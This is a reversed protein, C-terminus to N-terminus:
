FETINAAIWTQLKDADAQLAIFEATLAVLAAKQAAQNADTGYGAASVQTVLESYKTPISALAARAAMASAMSETLRKRNYVIESSVEDLKQIVGSATFAM